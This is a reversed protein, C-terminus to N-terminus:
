KNQESQQKFYLSRYYSKKNMLENHKGYEILNGNKFVMINDASKISSIRHSIILSTKNRSFHYLNKLITEETDTDISSFCDDLLIISPNKIFARAISIRQM